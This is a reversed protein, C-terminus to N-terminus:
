PINSLPPSELKPDPPRNALTYFKDGWGCIKLTFGSAAVMKQLDSLPLPRVVTSSIRAEAKKELTLPTEMNM